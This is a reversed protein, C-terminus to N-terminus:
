VKYAVLIRIPVNAFNPNNTYIRMTTPTGYLSGFAIFLDNEDNTVAYEGSPLTLLTGVIYLTNPTLGLLEYIDIDKNVGKGGTTTTIEKFTLGLLSNNLLVCNISSM